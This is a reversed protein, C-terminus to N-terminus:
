KNKLVFEFQKLEDSIMNSIFFQDFFNPTLKFHSRLPLRSLSAYFYYGSSFRCLPMIDVIELVHIQTSFLM